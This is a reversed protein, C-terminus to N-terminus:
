LRARVLTMRGVLMNLGPSLKLQLPANPAFCRFGAAYIESIYLAFAGNSEKFTHNCSLLNALEPCKPGLTVAAKPVIDRFLSPRISLAHRISNKSFSECRFPRQGVVRPVM